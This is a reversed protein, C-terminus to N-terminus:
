DVSSFTALGTNGSPLPVPFTYSFSKLVAIQDESCTYHVRVFTGDASRCAAGACVDFSNIGIIPKCKDKGPLSFPRGAFLVNSGQTICLNDARAATSTAAVLILTFAIVFRHTKMARVRAFAM